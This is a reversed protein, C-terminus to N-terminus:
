PQKLKIQAQKPLPLLKLQGQSTIKAFQMHKQQQYDHCGILGFAFPAWPHAQCVGVQNGYQDYTKVTTTCGALVLTIGLALIKYKRMLKGLNEQM